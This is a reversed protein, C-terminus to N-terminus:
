CWVCDDVQKCLGSLPDGGQGKGKEGGVDLWGNFGTAEIKKTCSICESRVIGAVLVRTGTVEDRVHNQMIIKMNEELVEAIEDQM